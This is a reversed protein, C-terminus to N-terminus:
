HTVSAHMTEMLFFCACLFLSPTLNWRFQLLALVPITFNSWYMGYLSGRIDESVYFILAIVAIGLALFTALLAPRYNAPMVTILIRHFWGAQTPLNVQYNTHFPWVSTGCGLELRIWILPPGCREDRWGVQLNSEKNRLSDFSSFVHHFTLIETWECEAPYRRLPM